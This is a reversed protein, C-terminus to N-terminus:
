RPTRRTTSDATIKPACQHIKSTGYTSKKPARERREALFPPPVSNLKTRFKDQGARDLIGVGKSSTVRTKGSLRLSRSLEILRGTGAELPPKCLLLATPSPYYSPHFSPYRPNTFCRHPQSPSKNDDPWPDLGLGELNPSSGDIVLLSPRCSCALDTFTQLGPFNISDRNWTPESPEQFHTTAYLGSQDFHIVALLRTDKGAKSDKSPRWFSLVLTM